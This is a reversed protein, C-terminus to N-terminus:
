YISAQKDLIHMSLPLESLMIMTGFLELPSPMPITTTKTTDQPLPIKQGVMSRLEPTPDMFTFPPHGIMNTSSDLSLKQVKRSKLQQDPPLVM